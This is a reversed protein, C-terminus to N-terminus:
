ILDKLSTLDTIRLFGLATLDTAAAGIEGKANFAGDAAVVV